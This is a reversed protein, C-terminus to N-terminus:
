VMSICNFNRMVLGRFSSIDANKYTIEDYIVENQLELLYEIAEKSESFSHIIDTTIGNKNIHRILRLAKNMNDAVAGDVCTKCTNLNLIYILNPHLMICEALSLSEDIKFKQIFKLGIASRNIMLFEKLLKFNCPITLTVVCTLMFKQMYYTEDQIQCNELDLGRINISTIQDIIHNNINCGIIKLYVRIDSLIALFDPLYRCYNNYFSLGVQKLTNQKLFHLLPVIIYPNDIHFACTTLKSNGLLKEFFEQWTFNKEGCLWYFAAKGELGEIYKFLNDLSSFDRRLFNDDVVVCEFYDYPM